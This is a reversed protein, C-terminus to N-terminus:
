PKPRPRLAYYEQGVSKLMPVKYRRDIEAVSTGARTAVLQKNEYIAIAYTIASHRFCNEPLVFGHDICLWRINEMAGATCVYGTRDAEPILQLWAYAADCLGDALPINRWAPTNIKAVTVRLAKREDLWIDSWKQRLMTAREVGKKPKKGHIEDSRMWSFGALVTAALYHPHQERIFELVEGFVKPTLIGIETPDEKARETSDIALKENAKLYGRKQIWRFLSGARKRHDNRTVGDSFSELYSECQEPTVTDAYVDGIIPRTEIVDTVTLLPKLKSRYTREGQKGAREKMAIFADIAAAIKIRKRETPKHQNSFERCAPLISGGALERAQVYEELAPILPVGTKKALQRAHALEELDARAAHESEAKNEALQQAKLKAGSIAENLDANSDRGRGGGILGWAWVYTCGSKTKAPQRYITVTAHGHTIRMPFEPSRSRAM